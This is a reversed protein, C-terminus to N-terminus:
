GRGKEIEKAHDWYKDLEELSHEEFKRGSGVVRSEVHRFRTIFKRNTQRLADEADIGLKRGVNVLAFLIDGFEKTLEEPPAEAAIEEELEGIEEKVKDFAGRWDPWDFGVGAAKRQIKSARYLSPLGEQISAMMSPEEKAGKEEKKIIEWNKLVEDSDSVSVDGFVHPHRRVMKTSIHGIVDKITFDGKEAAIQSHLAVQLLVDGLEDAIREPIRDDIAELVEHSEELLYPKLSEHTQKRDWPCGDPARLKAIIAIFDDFEQM